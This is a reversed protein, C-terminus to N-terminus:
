DDKLWQSGWVFECLYDSNTEIAFIEDEQLEDSLYLLCFPNRKVLAEALDRDFNVFDGPKEDISELIYLHLDVGDNKISFSFGTPQYKLEQEEMFSIYVKEAIPQKNEFIQRKIPPNFESFVM